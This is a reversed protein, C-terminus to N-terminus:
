KALKINNVFEDAMDINSFDNKYRIRYINGNLIFVYNRFHELYFNEIFTIAKINGSDLDVEKIDTYEVENINSFDKLTYVNGDIDVKGNNAVEMLQEFSFEVDYFNYNEDLLSINYYNDLSYGGLYDLNRLTEVLKNLDKFELNNEFYSVGIDYRSVIYDGINENFTFTLNNGYDWEDIEANENYSLEIDGFQRTLKNYEVKKPQELDTSLDIELSGIAIDSQEYQPIYGYKEMDEDYNFDYGEEYVNIKIKSNMDIKKFVIDNIGGVLYQMDRNLIINNNEDLIEITYQTNTHYGGSLVVTLKTLINSNKIKLASLIAENYFYNGDLDVGKGVSNKSIDKITTEKNIINYEEYEFNLKENDILLNFNWDGLKEYELGNYGSFMRELTFNVDLKSNETIKNGDIKCIEIIKYERNNVKEVIRRIDDGLVAYQYNNDMININEYFYIDPEEIFPYDINLDNKSKLDFCIILNEKDLGYDELTLTYDDYIKTENVNIKSQEYRETIGLKDFAWQFINKNETTYAYVNGALFLTLLVLSAVKGFSIKKFDSKEKKKIDEINDFENIAMKKELKEWIRDELFKDEM